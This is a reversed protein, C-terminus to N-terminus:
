SDRNFADRYIEDAWTKALFEDLNEASWESDKSEAIGIFSIERPGEDSLGLRLALELCRGGVRAALM